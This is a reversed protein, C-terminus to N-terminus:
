ESAKVYAKANLYAKKGILPTGIKDYFRARRAIEEKSSPWLYCLLIGVIFLGVNAHINMYPIWSSGPMNLRIAFASIIGVISVLMIPKESARWWFWGAWGAFNLCFRFIVALYTADLVSRMFQSTVFAFVAVLVTSYKAIRLLEDAGAQPRIFRKWVDYSLLSATTNWQTSGFSLCIGFLVAFLIGKLGVPLWHIVAYGFAQDPDTLDPFRTAVLAIIVVPMTYWIVTAVSAASMAHYATKEDKAAYMRQIVFPWIQGNFLGGIWIGLVFPWFSMYPDSLNEAINWGLYKEPFHAELAGMGGAKFWSIIMLLPIFILISILSVVNSWAVSVLGGVYSVILVGAFLLLTTWFEPLNLGVAFIKGAALFPAVTVTLQFLIFFIGSVGQLSNGYREGFFDSISTANLRKWKKAFLVAFIGMNFFFLMPLITGWLGVNYGFHAYAIMSGFNYQSMMLTGFLLFFGLSRGAVMFSDVNTVSRGKWFGVFTLTLIFLIVIWADLTSM